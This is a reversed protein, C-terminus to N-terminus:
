PTVKVRVHNSFALDYVKVRMRKLLTMSHARFKHRHRLQNLCQAVLWFTTIEIVTPALPIKLQSLGVLQVITKSDVCGSASILVLPIEQPYLSDTRLASLRAVKMHRIDPFEPLGLM